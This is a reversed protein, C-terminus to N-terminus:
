VQKPPQFIAVAAKIPRKQLYDSNPTEIETEFIPPLLSVTSLPLTEVLKKINEQQHKNKQDLEKLKIDMFCKGECHLEPHNKNSCLVTSIYTRNFIYSSSLIWYSFCNTLIGILLVIAIFHKGFKMKAFNFM